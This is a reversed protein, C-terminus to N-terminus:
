NKVPVQLVGLLKMIDDHKVPKVLHGNFGADKSKQRDGEQGWGTVAILITDKGWPQERIKRCAEYGNMKPLGIDLLIIDPRFEAAADVAEVGDHATRTENGSMEFLMAMLRATDRKDDVVLVRRAPIPVSEGKPEPPQQPKSTESLVPLRVAFESGRGHGESHATLTGEHMEVLRKALSLGIGLGGQSRDSSRDIQTFMDFVKPLMDPPIGVGTDSVTVVVGGAEGGELPPSQAAKGGQSPLPQSPTLEATLRIRGGPETYKCANTLLNGFVQALRAADAHLVIPAAPIAVDLELNAEQALPRCADVAQQIVPALEIRNKRLELKNRTIRSVDLLDDILRVMLEIQVQMTSRAQEILEANGHARTILELGSLVPALPNRLEHALMALFEDKRRDADRLAEEAQKRETIDFAIGGVLGTTGDPGRIPFKSVISHHLVGDEHELTEVVQVGSGSALALRDNEKFQAAVKPPFLEDDTKHYLQERPARFARAAADNVYVYRGELDKIWALGPLHQMFRAFREESERLAQEARRREMFQGVQGGITTMMELLDADPERIHRSFFEIAGLFEAGFLIPFGFAAHLGEREAIPARPFNADQVVDPIWVAKGSTWIRGPLGDGPRFTRQRTNKEFDTIRVSPPHWLEVCRLVQAAPDVRWLTGVDWQLGECLSQLLPAAAEGVAAAEALIQTVALRATRRREARKSETLDRVYATFLPPGDQRIATIALEIPFETGDARLAPMELRQRLVPGEGTALYHALGRYHQERHSPPVILEAMQRGLVDGKRFGFVGEAAPNFEVIRGQHDITIIADLATELIATKRAESEVLAREAKRREAVDRFVLVCGAVRGQKDRIPAASDDIPRETGDKAILVTHNALGVIIGERLSREAPNEVSRHTKENVIHFVAGLPQGAAELQTWGTLSEAVGNMTVIRDHTDTTIVADGISALTTRLLDRRERARVRAIRMAEGFGIIIGCSVVYALMGVFNALNYFGFNGRPEVFLYDCAFYGLLATVLAPRYGALWVAAGVAAYLTVLPLHDSLWPDLLWRVVVAAATVVIALFYGLVQRPMWERM